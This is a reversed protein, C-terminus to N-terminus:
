LAFAQVREAAISRGGDCSFFKPVSPKDQGGSVAGISAVRRGLRKRSRKRFKIHFVEGSHRFFVIFLVLHRIQADTEVFSRHVDDLHSARSGHPELSPGVM